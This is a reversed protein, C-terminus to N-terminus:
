KIFIKAKQAPATGYSQQFGKLYQKLFYVKDLNNNFILDVFELANKLCVEHYMYSDTEFSVREHQLKYDIFEEDYTKSSTSLLLHAYANINNQWITEEISANLNRFELTNKAKKNKISYSHINRFNIAQNKSENPIIYIVNRLNEFDEIEQLSEYLKDAIPAAYGLIEKRASIKDGFGFRFLIHEYAIYIKFMKRWKKYDTGLTHAGLHIHGGANQDTIAKKTKLLDCISKLEQWTQETNTLIPSTIEGGKYLSMDFKSTWESLNQTVFKDIQNKNVQEYELETGFTMDEPINLLKRYHFDFNEIETILEQLNLGKLKSFQDNQEPNLFPSIKQKM